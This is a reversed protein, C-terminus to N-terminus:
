NNEDRSGGRNKGLIGAGKDIAALLIKETSIASIFWLFVIIDLVAMPWAWWRWGRWVGIVTAPICLCFLTWYFAKEKRRRLLVKQNEDM